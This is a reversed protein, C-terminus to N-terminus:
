GAAAGRTALKDTAYVGIRLNGPSATIVEAAIQDVVVPSDVWIPSYVDRNATLAGGSGSSTAIPRGPIVYYVTSSQKPRGPSAGDDRGPAIFPTYSM